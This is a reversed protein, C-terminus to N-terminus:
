ASPSSCCQHAARGHLLPSRGINGRDRRATAAGIVAGLAVGEVRNQAEQQPWRHARAARQGGPPPSLWTVHLSLWTFHPSLWTVHPSLWTVTPIVLHCSTIVLYCSPLAAARQGVQYPHYGPLMLHYGSSMPHYGPLGFCRAARQGVEAENAARAGQNFADIVEALRRQKTPEPM